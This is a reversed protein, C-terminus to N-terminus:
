QAKVSVWVENLQKENFVTRFFDLKKIQSARPIPLRRHDALGEVEVTNIPSFFAYKEILYKLVDHRYLYNILQYALETNKSSVPIAINDIAMFGGEEPIIFDIAPNVRMAKWVETSLAVAAPCQGALLLYDSRLDTYMAVRQKQEILLKKIAAMQETNLTDFSKFLYQAAIMIAERADDVMGIKHPACIDTFVLDWSPIPVSNNFFKKNIGLGYVGWLFPISYENNRDFYHGLLVPNIENYFALKSRDIKQLLGEKLLTHVMYDSPMILDYGQGKTANMKVFLEENAEFYTVNVKIGTEVEFAQLTASDILQPWAFLNISKQAYFNKFLSPIYLVSGIVLCWGVVIFFRIIGSFFTAQNM